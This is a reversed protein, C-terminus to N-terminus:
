AEVWVEDSYNSVQSDNRAKIKFYNRKGIVALSMYDTTPVTNLLSFDKSPSDREVVSVFINYSTAEPTVDWTLQIMPIEGEILTAVLNQPKPLMPHVTEYIIYDNYKAEDVDVWIIKGIECYRSVFSYLENGKKVREQTKIDRIEQASAITNLSGQFLDALSTLNTIMAATLGVPTLDTLYGNATTVVQRCTTLFKKDEFKTMSNAGFKKEQPSNSGWKVIACNTISRVAVEAQKRVSNKSQVAISIDAQYYSDNPLNAFATALTGFSTINAATVGRSAFQTTDRTMSATLQSAFACLEADTMNYNRSISNM